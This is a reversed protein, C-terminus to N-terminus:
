IWNRGIESNCQHMANPAHIIRWIISWDLLNTYHVTFPSNWKSYFHIVILHFIEFFSHFPSCYIPSANLLANICPSRNCARFHKRSTNASGIVPSFLQCRGVHSITELCWVFCTPVMWSCWRQTSENRWRYMWRDMWRDTWEVMWEDVWGDMYKNRVRFISYKFM